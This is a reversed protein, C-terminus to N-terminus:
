EETDFLTPTSEMDTLKKIFLEVEDKFRVPCDIQIIKDNAQHEMQEYFDVVARSAQLRNREIKPFITLGEINSCRSLGVYLQGPAFTNTHVICKDFTLGQSKHITIAYALKLPIQIVEGVTETKIRTAPKGNEDLYDEAESKLVKWKYPEFAIYRDNEDFRVIVEDASCSMVTGQSGNVYDGDADNILSMVRAGACLTLTDEAACDSKNVEGNREARYTYKRGSLANVNEQNINAAIKNTACLFIADKPAYKRNSVSRENFYPICSSDGNRAQNLNAIYDPDEQRVVQHLIHPEFAFGSWYESKFAWGELNGPYLKMLTKLDDKTVVPPLQFFDGVLVVQKVGSKGQVSNIWSMVREFLDIRCMSIEDIIITRATSLVKPARRREKADCVGFKVGLTRHITSGNKLNLAAIGTPAMALYEVGEKELHDIFRNLVYSKGTGANGSLFVNKGDCLAQFASRQDATLGDLEGPRVVM